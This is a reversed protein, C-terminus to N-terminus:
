RFAYTYICIYIYNYIYIYVGFLIAIFRLCHHLNQFIRLGGSRVEFEVQFVRASTVAYPAAFTRAAAVPAAAM